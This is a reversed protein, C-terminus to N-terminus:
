CGRREGVTGRSQWMWANARPEREAGRPPYRREAGRPGSRGPGAEELTPRHAPSPVSWYFPPRGLAPGGRGARSHVRMEARCLVRRPVEERRVPLHSSGLPRSFPSPFPARREATRPGRRPNDQGTGWVHQSSAWVLPRQPRRPRAMSPPCSNPNKGQTPLPPPLALTLAVSRWRPSGPGTGRVSPQGGELGCMVSLAGAGRLYFYLEESWTRTM